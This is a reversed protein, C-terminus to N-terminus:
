WLRIFRRLIACVRLSRQLPTSLFFRQSSDPRNIPRHISNTIPHLRFPRKAKLLLVEVWCNVACFDTARCNDIPLSVFSAAANTLNDELRLMEGTAHWYVNLWKGVCVNRAVLNNEPPVGKFADGEIVPGGPPGYCQDLTKMEPYRERYLPLSIEVALEALDQVHSRPLGGERHDVEVM